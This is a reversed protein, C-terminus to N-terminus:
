VVKNLRSRESWKGTPRRMDAGLIPFADFAVAKISDGARAAASGVAALPLSAASALTLLM